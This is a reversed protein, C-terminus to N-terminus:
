GSTAQWCPTRGAPWAAQASCTTPSRFARTRLGNCDWQSIPWDTANGYFRNVGDLSCSEHWILGGRMSNFRIVINGAEGFACGIAIPSRERGLLTAPESGFVARVDPQERDAAAPRLHRLHGVARPEHVELQPHHHRRHAKGFSQFCELHAGERGGGGRGRRVRGRGGRGRREGKRGGGERIRGGGGEERGGGGEESGDGGGGGEREAEGGRWM